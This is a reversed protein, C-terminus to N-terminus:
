KESHLCLLSSRFSVSQCVNVPVILVVAVEVAVAALAVSRGKPHLAQLMVFYCLM